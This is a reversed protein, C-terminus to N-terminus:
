GKIEVAYVEVPAAKGRFAAPGLAEVAVQGDLAARTRPDILITRQAV